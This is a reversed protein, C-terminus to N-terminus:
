ETRITGMMGNDEHDLIHCHYVTRGALGEFAIRVVTRSRAPVPVVDRWDVHDVPRGAVTILQMPWVHLHFPHDMPSTNVITWEELAGHSVEVDIRDLDFAQGDITFSMGGGGPGMALTITRAGTVQESRLDRTTPLPVTFPPATVPAGTVALTLLDAGRTSSSPRGMMGMGGRDFPLTQLVSTGDVATVMVEARNGPTLVIEEVDRPEAYRGADVGLLQMRQGDLRLRLFRSSCANIVRWREREGPRAVLSSGVQGNVMVLDGERGLMREAASAVHRAAGDVARAAIKLRRERAAAVPEEDDVIIAGYLGSFLQEASNGHHHPHYWFVGTPHDGGLEYAYDFTDGPEIMVFVNDSNGEPSVVLGHTHLNTPADLESRFTLAIRDGPRVRLTPGPLSGNFTLARVQRGAVVADTLAATLTLELLGDSSQLVEPETLTAIDKPQPSPNRSPSGEPMTVAPVEPASRQGQSWLWLGGGILAAGGVGGLVLVGRRTIGRGDRGASPTPNEGIM